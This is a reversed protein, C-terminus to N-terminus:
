KRSSQMSLSSVTVPRVGVPKRKHGDKNQRGGTTKGANAKKKTKRERGNRNVNETGGVKQKTSKTPNQRKLAAMASTPTLPALVSRPAAPKSTTSNGSSQATVAKKLTPRTSVSQDEKQEDSADDQELDIAMQGRGRAAVIGLMDEDEDEDEADGQQKAEDIMSTVSDLSLNRERGKRKTPAKKTQGSVANGNSELSISRARSKGGKRREKSRGNRTPAMYSPVNGSSAHQSKSEKSRTRKVNRSVIPKKIGNRQTKHPNSHASHTVKRRKQAPQPDPVAHERETGGGSGGVEATPLKRKRPNATSRRSSTAPLATRPRAIHGYNSNGNANRTSAGQARQQAKLKHKYDMVENSLKKIQKEKKEVDQMMRAHEKQLNSFDMRTQHHNAKKSSQADISSTLKSIEKKCNRNNMRLHNIEKEKEELDRKMRKLKQKLLETGNGNGNGSGGGHGKGSDKPAEAENKSAEGLQVRRVRNAFQLTNISEKVDFLECSINCFMLAKSNGGLCDHLLYTLQSDRYPIHKDKRQLSSIVNGLASLSKNINRAEDFRAGSAGTKKVRESGALDILVLRSSTKLTIVEVFVLAHSRSSHENMNTTGTSRNRYATNVLIDRVNNTDVVEAKTLGPVLVKKGCKSLKAKLDQPNFGSDRYVASNPDPLLDRIKENYIELCSLSIKMSDTGSEELTQQKLRFLEDFTQYIVGPNSSTGEMTYTKGSGTQGYAFICVNYGDVCSQILPCVDQFITDQQSDPKYVQDFSFEKKSSANEDCFIGIREDDLCTTAMLQPQGDEVNAKRSIKPRVRCFVRINGKLDIVQELLKKRLKKEKQYSQNLALLNSKLEDREREAEELIQRASNQQSLFDPVDEEADGNLFDSSSDTPVHGHLLGTTIAEALCSFEQGARQLQFKVTSKMKGYDATLRMLQSKCLDIQGMKSVRNKFFDLKARVNKLDEERQINESDMRKIENEKKGLEECFNSCKREYEERERQMTEKMTGNEEKLTANEASLATVQTEMAKSHEAATELSHCRREFDLYKTRYEEMQQQLERISEGKEKLRDEYGEITVEKKKLEIDRHEVDVVLDDIRQQMREFEEERQQQQQQEEEEEESPLGHLVGSMMGIDMSRNADEGRKSERRQMALVDNGEEHDLADLSNGRSNERSKWGYHSSTFSSSSATVRQSRPLSRRGGPVSQSRPQSFPDFQIGTMFGVAPTQSHRIRFVRRSHTIGPTCKKIKKAKPMVNTIVKRGSQLMASKLHRTRATSIAKRASMLVRQPPPSPEFSNSSVSSENLGMNMSGGSGRVPTQPGFVHPLEPVDDKSEDSGACRADARDTDNSAFPLPQTSSDTPPNWHSERGRGSALGQSSNGWCLFGPRPLESPSNKTHDPTSVTPSPQGQSAKGSHSRPTMPSQQGVSVQRLNDRHFKTPMRNQQQTLFSTRSLYACKRTPPTFSTSLFQNHSASHTGFPQSLTNRPLTSPNGDSPSETSTTTETRATGPCQPQGWTKPTQPGHSSRKRKSSPTATSSVTQPGNKAEFYAILIRLVQLLRYWEMEPGPSASLSFSGVLSKRRADPKHYEPLLIDWLERDTFMDGLATQQRSEAGYVTGTVEALMEQASKQQDDHKIASTIDATSTTENQRHNAVVKHHIQRLLAGSAIYEADLRISQADFLREFIYQASDEPNVSSDSSRDSYFSSPTSSGSRTSGPTASREDSSASHPRKKSKPHKIPTIFTHIQQEANSEENKDASSGEKKEENKEANKEENKTENMEDNRALERETQNSVLSWLGQIM